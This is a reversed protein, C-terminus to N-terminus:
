QGAPRTRDRNRTYTMQVFGNDFSESKTLDYWQEPHQHFLPIGTGLIVPVITLIIEDILDAALLESVLEAGGILWITKGSKAKLKNVFQAPDDSLYKVSKIKSKHKERSFVYGKLGPYPYTGGFSLVQDWTKRGMLITDVRAMFAKYGYDSKLENPLYSLWDLEGDKGAIKGDLSTAIYLSVNRM